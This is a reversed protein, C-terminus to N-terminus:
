LSSVSPVYWQCFGTNVKTPKCNNEIGCWRKSITTWEGAGKRAIWWAVSGEEVVLSSRGGATWRIAAHTHTHAYGAGCVVPNSFKVELEIEARSEEEWCRQLCRCLM